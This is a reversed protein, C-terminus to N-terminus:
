AFTIETKKQDKRNPLWQKFVAWHSNCQTESFIRLSQFLIAWFELSRNQHCKAFINLMSKFLTQMSWSEHLNAREDVKRREFWVGFIVRIKFVVCWMVQWFPAKWYLSCFKSWFDTHIYLNCREAIILLIELYLNSSSCCSCAAPSTSLTRFLTVRLKRWKWHHM